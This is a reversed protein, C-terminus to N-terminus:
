RKVLRLLTRITSAGLVRTVVLLLLYIPLAAARALLQTTNDTPLMMVVGYITATIALILGVRILDYHVPYVRLQVVYLIVASVVYAAVKAWAAGMIGYHPVLFWTAAVSVVAAVGTAIPFLSTRKQIHFGASMNIFVGNFFYAFMVVPVISLGSWYTPNIFRGGIFPLQVVYPMFLATVLFLAGCVISFLTFVRAFLGKAEPDDRHHLYFPKWAYEFMTVFMMMPIALRFNTQYMGVMASGTLMLMIPRDAVQVMIASFNSPVTPLGFRLMNGFLAKAAPLNERVRRVVGTMSPLFYLLTAASGLVGAWLVGEIKMGLVVVFLINLAVTVVISLLRLAAFTRPKQQMRLQAFPILVMADLLPILSAIAVYTAGESSLQLFTSGAIPTALAVTLATVVLSVSVVALVAVSFVRANSEGDSREWFRMFAPEMGLSYVINVFAIMAYIATVDGIESASLFNTYLPTLLFSLFRGLVTSVGYVITDSALSRIKSQM